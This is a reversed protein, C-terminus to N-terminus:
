AGQLSCLLRNVCDWVQGGGVEGGGFPPRSERNITNSGHLLRDTNWCDACLAARLAVSFCVSQWLSSSWVPNSLFCSRIFQAFSTLTYLVTMKFQTTILLDTLRLQNTVNIKHLKGPVSWPPNRYSSIWGILPRAHINQVKRESEYRPLVTSRGHM